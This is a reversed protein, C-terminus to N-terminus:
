TTNSPSGILHHLHFFNVTVSFLNNIATIIAAITNKGLSTLIYFLLRLNDFKEFSTRGKAGNTDTFSTPKEPTCLHYSGFISFLSAASKLQAMEQVMLAM